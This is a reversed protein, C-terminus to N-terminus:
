LKLEEESFGEVTEGDRLQTYCDECVIEEAPSFKSGEFDLKIKRPPFM